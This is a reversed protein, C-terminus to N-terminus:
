PCPVCIIHGCCFIYFCCPDYDEQTSSAMQLLTLQNVDVIRGGAECYNDTVDTINRISQDYYIRMEGTDKNHGLLFTAGPDVSSIVDQPVNMHVLKKPEAPEAM